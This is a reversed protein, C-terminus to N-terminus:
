QKSIGGSILNPLYANDWALEKPPTNGMRLILINESPMMYIVQNSNGDFLFLDEDAYPASHFTPAVERDVNRVGRRETYPHGM